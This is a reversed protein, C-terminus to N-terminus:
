TSWEFCYYSGITKFGLKEYIRYGSDSSASLCIKKYGQKKSYRMMFKMMATGVGRGRMDPNTILDFVGAIEGSFHIAGTTVPVDNVYCIFLPNNKIIEDSLIKDNIYFDDANEDYMSIISAFDRLQDLDQCPRIDFENEAIGSSYNDNLDAIMVREDTEKSFGSEILAQIFGENCFSPGLWWAFPRGQYSDIIQKILSKQNKPVQKTRCVINFMSSNYKSDVRLCHDIQEVTYGLLKPLYEFKSFLNQEAQLLYKDIM